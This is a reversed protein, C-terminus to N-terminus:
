KLKQYASASAENFTLVKEQPNVFRFTHIIKKFLPEFEAFQEKNSVAFSIRYVHSDKVVFYDLLKIEPHKASSALVQLAPYNRVYTKGIRFADAYDYVDKLVVPTLDALALGSEQSKSITATVSRDPESIIKLVISQPAIELDWLPSCKIKYGLNKDICDTLPLRFKFHKSEPATVAAFGITLSGAELLLGVFIIIYIKKFNGQM